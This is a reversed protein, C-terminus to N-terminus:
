RSSGIIYDVCSPEYTWNIKWNINRFHCVSAFVPTNDCSAILFLPNSAGYNPGKAICGRKLLRTSAVVASMANPAAGAAAPGLPGLTTPPAAVTWPWPPGETITLWDVGFAMMLQFVNLIPTLSLTRKM